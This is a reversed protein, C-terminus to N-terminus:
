HNIRAVSIRVLARERKLRYKELEEGGVEGSLAKESSKLSTEARSLDIESPKEATEALINVVDNAVECYGWSVAVRETESSGKRKFQVVGTSLTTMLPAHGTLINLEGRYAPVLLDDVEVDTVLKKEPTVVTLKLM